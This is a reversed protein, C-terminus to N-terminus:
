DFLHDVNRFFKVDSRVNMRVSQSQNQVRVPINETTESRNLSFRAHPVECAPFIAIPHLCVVTQLTKKERQRIKEAHQRSSKRQVGFPLLLGNNIIKFATSAKTDTAVNTNGIVAICVGVTINRNAQSVDVVSFQVIANTKV